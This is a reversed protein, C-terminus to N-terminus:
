SRDDVGVPWHLPKLHKHLNFTGFEAGSGDEAVEVIFFIFEACTESGTDDDVGVAEFYCAALGAKGRRLARMRILLSLVSRGLLLSSM